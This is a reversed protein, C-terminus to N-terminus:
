RKKRKKKGGDEGFTSALKGSLLQVLKEQIMKPNDGAQIAQLGECVVMKCLYEEDHRMKLKNNIPAFIFNAMITGYFTTVLAVSMAPAIAASDELSQLLNILGILTGIMGFAPAYSAGKAYFARDLSHREDMYDLETEMMQKVKEADVADIILNLSNKFFPDKIQDVQNQLALVGEARAVKAIEVVQNIYDQVNFKTPMLVIKLHKPIRTFFEIPYSVMMAAFTGGVVIMVSPGDIFRNLNGWLIAFPTDGKPFQVVISALIFVIGVVWGLISMIDPSSAAGGKEKKAM